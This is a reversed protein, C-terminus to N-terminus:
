GIKVADSKCERLYRDYFGKGYGVRYGHRDFSILPVFILDILKSDLLKGDLPELINLNNKIFLKEHQPIRAELGLQGNTKPLAIELSPFMKILVDECTSVDFEKKENMPSYSLLYNASNFKIQNFFYLILVSQDSFDQFSLDLRKQLYTKRIEKKLM